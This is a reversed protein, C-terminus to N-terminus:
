VCFCPLRVMGEDGLLTAIEAATGYEGLVWDPAIEALPLMVFGRLHARPHPLTLEPTDWKEHNFDIVDLDLTRPANQFSRVRGFENEVNQLLHLLALAHLPTRLVAVANIFDPQDAYGVPATRYLSSVRLDAIEPQQRLKALANQIQAIPNDLNSGLAIIATNM